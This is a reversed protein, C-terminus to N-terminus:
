TRGLRTRLVVRASVADQPTSYVEGTVSSSGIDLTVGGFLAVRELNVQVQRNDTSGEANTFDVEFRPRMWTYGAGVYPHIRGGGAGVVAEAGFLGPQWRDDSRTGGFCESAPDTLEADPCTVPARLSGFVADARLGLFWSGGLPHAHEVAVGVLNAKVQDVVIPPVWSVEFQLSRWGISVRPRTLGPIPNTNEPGKDPRCATPTADVRDVTPLSAAELGISIGHSHMPAEAGSFTVPVSLIAFTKAEHSDSPPLCIDQAALAAAMMVAMTGTLTILRIM